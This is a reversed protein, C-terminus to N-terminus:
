CCNIEIDNKYERMKLLHEANYDSEIENISATTLFFVDQKLFYFTAHPSSLIISKAM